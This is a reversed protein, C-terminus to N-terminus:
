AWRVSDLRGPGGPHRRGSGRLHRACFQDLQDLLLQHEPSSFEILYDAHSLGEFVILEAETGAELLKTHTRVTNSLLIDRVGSVLLSPPFGDVDGYLPSIRPDTLEIGNAFCEAMAEVLGAWEPISRDVDHNTHISDGVGSLDSGPTGIFLAGPVRMGQELLRQVALMTLAGGASSGGMVISRARHRQLLDLYVAVVDDVPTPYPHHPPMRYDISVARMGIGTALLLAETVCAPGGNLLYAGGHVHVFLHEDHAPSIEDPVVHYVDVGAVQDREVTAPLAAELAQAGAIAPEDAAAVFALWEEDTAPIPGGHKRDAPNSGAVSDRIVTSAGSPPPLTRPGLQIGDAQPTGTAPNTTM